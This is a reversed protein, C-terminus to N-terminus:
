KDDVSLGLLVRAIKEPDIKYEGAEIMARIREVRQSSEVPPNNSISEIKRALDSIKLSVDEPIVSSKRVTKGISASSQVKDMGLKNINM